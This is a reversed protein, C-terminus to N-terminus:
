RERMSLLYSLLQADELLARPCHTPLNTYDCHLITHLTRLFSFVSSGYSGANGSRPMYKPFFFFFMIQISVHVGINVAASKVVVLVHFSGLHGDVPYLLHPVYIHHVIM